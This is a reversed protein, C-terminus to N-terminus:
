KDQPGVRGDGNVDIEFYDRELREVMLRSVSELSGGVHISLDNERAASSVIMAGSFGQCSSDPTLPAAAVTIEFQRQAKESLIAVRGSRTLEARVRKAIERQRPDEEWTSVSVYVPEVTSQGFALSALILFVFLAKM